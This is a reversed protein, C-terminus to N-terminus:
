LGADSLYNKQFRNDPCKGKRHIRLETAKTWKNHYLRKRMSRFFISVPYNSKTLGCAEEVHCGKKYPSKTATSEPVDQIIGLAEFKYGAPKVDASNDIFIFPEGPVLHKITQLYAVAPNTSTGKEIIEKYKMM